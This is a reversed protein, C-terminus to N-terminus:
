GVDNTNRCGELIELITKAQEFVSVLHRGAIRCPCSSASAASRLPATINIRVSFPRPQFRTCHVNGFGQLHVASM